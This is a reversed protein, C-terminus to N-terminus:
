AEGATLAEKLRSLATRIRSKVTGLPEDLKSAIESHSLDEYFALELATRHQTPLERLARRVRDVDQRVTLELVPDALPATQEVPSEAKGSTSDPRARRARLRDLGRSRTMVLLWTPVSGRSSDYRSAQRWSQAFVDQTIEEADAEHGTIRFALSYIAAAHRDYLAALAHDRGKAMEQVLDTDTEVPRVRSDAEGIPPPATKM